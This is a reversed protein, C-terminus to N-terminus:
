PTCDRRLKWLHAARRQAEADQVARSLFPYLDRIPALASEMAETADRVMSRAEERVVARLEERVQPSLKDPDPNM